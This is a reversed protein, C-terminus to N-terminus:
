QMDKQMHANQMKAASEYRNQKFQFLKNYLLHVIHGYVNLNSNNTYITLIPNGRFLLSQYHIFFHITGAKQLETQM